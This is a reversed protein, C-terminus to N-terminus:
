TARALNGSEFRSEFILTTDGQSKLQYFPQLKDYYKSQCDGGSDNVRMSLTGKKDLPLDGKFNSDYVLRVVFNQNQNASIIVGAFAARAGGHHIPEIDM